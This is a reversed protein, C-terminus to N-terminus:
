ADVRHLCFSLPPQEHRIQTTQKYKRSVARCVGYDDREVRTNVQYAGPTTCPVKRLDDLLSGKNEPNNFCDGVQANLHTCVEVNKGPKAGRSRWSYQFDPCDAKAAARVVILAAEPDSCDRRQLDWSRNKQGQTFYGCDGVKMTESKPQGCGAAAVVACVLFVATAASRLRFKRRPLM